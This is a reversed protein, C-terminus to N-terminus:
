SRLARIALYVVAVTLGIFVACVRIGFLAVRQWPAPPAEWEDIMESTQQKM